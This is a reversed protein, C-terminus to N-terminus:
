PAINETIGGDVMINTGTVYKSSDSLLWIVADAVDDDTGLHGMPIRNALTSELDPDSAFRDEWTKNRIFGPCVANVRIGDRGYNIAATRTLGIVGHKSAAYLHTGDPGGKVGGISSNNVISGGGADLMARLQYKMCLWVGKLNTDIFEDFMKSEVDPWRNGAGGLKAANNFAGDLRGFRDIALEVMSEVDSEKTVDAQLFAATGGSSNIENAVDQIEDIRRAAVVVSAGEGALRFATSRGIGSSAGTVLIVKGELQGTM